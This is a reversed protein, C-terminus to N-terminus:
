EHGMRGLLDRIRDALLAPEPPAIGGDGVLDLWDPADELVAWADLLAQAYKVPAEAQLRVPSNPTKAYLERIREARALVSKLEAQTPLPESM